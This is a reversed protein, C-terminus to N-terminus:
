CLSAKFNNNTTSTLLLHHPGLTTEFNSKTNSDKYTEKYFLM